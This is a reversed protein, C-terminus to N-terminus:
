KPDGIGIMAFKSPLKIDNPQNTAKIKLCKIYKQLYLKCEVNILSKEKLRDKYRKIHEQEAPRQERAQQVEKAPM